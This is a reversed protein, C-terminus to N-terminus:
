LTKLYYASLSYYAAKSNAGFSYSALPPKSAPLKPWSTARISLGPEAIFTIGNEHFNDAPATGLTM